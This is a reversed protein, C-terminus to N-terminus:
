DSRHDCLALLETTLSRLIAAKDWREVARRRGCDGLVQRLACDDALTQVAAALARSDGPPVILGAGKVEDALGTGPESMVIVPRGSAFIAGLKSPLVLDAVEVRQPILHVDATNLLEPFRENSQLPLFHINDLGAAMALLRPKQPGEGCMIFRIRTNTQATIQAAEVILELGQKYSMTGSYLAVLDTEKIGLETRFHTRSDGSVIAATDIWNRVERVRTPDVGKRELQRLMPPSITSVRDFSCLIRREVALTFQRLRENRLLGLDFAADIEFDQLHLWSHAHVRHALIAIMVSSMLSPAVSFVVHPRWRLIASLVPIASTVAFSAHHLVRSTGSPKSPVYIPARRLSVGNIKESRYWCTRYPKPISWEPYYPPATVVRIEHGSNSLWECLETNYKAVGVLDPAYNIGCFLIRM